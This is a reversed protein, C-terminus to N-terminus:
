SFAPSAHWFDQTRAKSYYFTWCVTYEVFHQPVAPRNNVRATAYSFIRSLVPGAWANFRGQEWRRKHVVWFTSAQSRGVSLTSAFRRTNEDEATYNQRKEIPRSFNNDYRKAKGYSRHRARRRSGCAIGGCGSTAACGTTVRYRSEYPPRQQRLQEYLHQIHQPLQESKIWCIWDKTFAIACEDNRRRTRGFDETQHSARTSAHQTLIADM